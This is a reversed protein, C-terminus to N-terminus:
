HRMMRLSMMEGMLMRATNNRGVRLGHHELAGGIQVGPISVANGQGTISEPKAWSVPLQCIGNYWRRGALASLRNSM